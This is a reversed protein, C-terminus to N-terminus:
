WAMDGTAIFTPAEWKKTDYQIIHCQLINYCIAYWLTDYIEIDCQTVDHRM